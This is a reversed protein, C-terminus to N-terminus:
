KPDVCLVSITGDASAILVDGNRPDTGFTTIASIRALLRVGTTQGNFYLLSWIKGTCYDGFLYSGQLDPMTAGRYVVGGIICCGQNHGYSYIPKQYNDLCDGSGEPGECIPWGFNQGGGVSLPDIVDVEEWKDQGVDGCYIQGTWSDFTFRWPNRLGICFFENRVKTPDIKVGNLHTCGIFPNSNPIYYNTTSGPFPRPIFNHPKCDVDICIIGSHIEYLQQSLANDRHPDGFSAFLLGGAGFHIDGGQHNGFDPTDIIETASEPAGRNTNSYDIQFRTICDQKENTVSRTYFCYFYGNHVFDPHFALGLLGSELADQLVLNTINLFVTKTPDALNTIVNIVGSKEVIFLRNTEGPPSAICVPMDFKMGPFADRTTYAPISICCLLAAGVLIKKIHNMFAESKRM